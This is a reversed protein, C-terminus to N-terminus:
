LGVMESIREIERVLTRRAARRGADATLLPRIRQV